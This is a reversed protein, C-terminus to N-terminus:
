EITLYGGDDFDRKPLVPIEDLTAVLIPDGSNCVLPLLPIFPNGRFLKPLLAIVDDAVSPVVVPADEDEVFEGGPDDWCKGLSVADDFCSGNESIFNFGFKALCEFEAM